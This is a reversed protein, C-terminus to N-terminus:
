VQVVSMKATGASSRMYMTLGTTSTVECRLVERALQKVMTGDAATQGIQFSWYYDTDSRIEIIQPNVGTEPLVASLKALLGEGDGTTIALYGVDKPKTTNATLTVTTLAM